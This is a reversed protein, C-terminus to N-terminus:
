RQWQAYQRLSVPEACAALRKEDVAVSSHSEPRSCTFVKLRGRVRCRRHKQETQPEASGKAEGPISTTGAPLRSVGDEMTGSAWTKMALLAEQSRSRANAGPKSANGDYTGAMM